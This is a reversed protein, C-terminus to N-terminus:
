FEAWEDAANSTRPAAGGTGTTRMQAAPRLTAESKAPGRFPHPAAPRTGTRFSKVMAALQETESQLCQAAATTEEVMAANRQTVKDMQDAAASVERLSTAQEGAARAISRVVENMAGVEAVIEKLSEGSSAVLGVGQEVQASSTAILAKIEKAADASRQALGRVEQAVVAFGRGAEGARAAEVGANLALLNTQFAIEDIVGIIKGIQDSSQEIASMATVARAVIEGGKEANKQATVATAQAKAADQATVDIGRTVESLAAVTEELSAAQQETRQSLDGAAVTIENLGTKMTGVASVVSGITEELQAISANFKARITEFEPAVATEMRATLNGGSLADFGAEVQQVFIKLDQAKVADVASQRHRLEEGSRTVQEQEIHLRRGEALDHRFRDLVAALGGIEDQRERGEVVTQYDGRGMGEVSALLKSLPRRVIRVSFAYLLGLVLLLMAAGAVVTRTVERYVPAAFVEHPVDVVAAWVSDTGPVQFPYVIREDGSGLEFHRVAGDSLAATLAEFGDDEYAKMLLSADPHVLWKATSSVLMVRGTGFPKMAGIMQSLDGLKIDVGAVGIAKGAVNVPFSVSTLLVKTDSLYPETIIGKGLKLPDAYWQNSADVTFTSFEIAGTDTKTWYPTFSGQENIGPGTADVAGDFGGPSEAMWAGFVSPYRQPLPKLLAIVDSRSRSGGDLVGGITGAVANGASVAENLRVSVDKATISAEQRAADLITEEVSTKTQWATVCISAAFIAVIACGTSLVLRGSLTRFLAPM